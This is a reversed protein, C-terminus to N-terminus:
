SSEHERIVFFGDNGQNQYLPMLIYGDCRAVIKGEKDNALWEGEKIPQFNKYGPRMEFEDGPEIIHQYVLEAEGPLHQTHSKLHQEYEKIESVYQKEICGVAQLYLILSATINYETLKNNHNGGELGFSIFGKRQYYSLATGQLSNEIGFVMPVHLNSLLTRQRPEPSTISFMSGEASFTHVDMLFVPHESRRLIKEFLTLLFKMERRENSNIQNRPTKRIQDIISPFWLRNMDEDIYRMGQELATLNGRVLILRGRIPPHVDKLMNFVNEAATVGAPENGHMGTVIVVTPGDPDGKVSGIIHEKYNKPTIEATAPNSM